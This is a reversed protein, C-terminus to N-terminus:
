QLVIEQNLVPMSIDSIGLEAKIKDALVTRPGDEGHTLIVKKVGYIAKLWNLLQRQDAHSSMVQTENVQASVHIQQKGLRVNKEGMLLQRGLTGEGQYGVFLLRTSTMPLYQRAHEIIRGGTMMGSGAIIVKTGNTQEIKTSDQRDRIIQLGPFEFPDSNMFDRRLEINMFSKYKEYIITAKQAMPSDMYVLTEPRVLKQTKLHSIIHLLEQTRELSFAPILLTSRSQEVCNIETKIIDVADGAPHLRDGYTSEMVVIDASKVLETPQVLDEPTNGLDGSFVIKQGDVTIEMSASGIIHGADRYIIKFGGIYFEKDYEVSKFRRVLNLVDNKDYLIKEPHDEYGIKASDILSLETLEATPATLYINGTFGTKELVPLRGCHDLHAHTLIAGSLRKADLQLPQYNLNDIEPPGQFMGLDILIQEGSNATLLYSSGTVTRAAGLFKVKM